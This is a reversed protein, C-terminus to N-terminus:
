GGARGEPYSSGGSRQFPLRTNGVLTVQEPRVGRARLEELLRPPADIGFIEKQRETLKPGAGTEVLVVHDADRILLCNMDMAVRNREDAPKRKEWLVKPVIGFM